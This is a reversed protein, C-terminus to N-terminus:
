GAQAELNSIRLHFADQPLGLTDDPPLCLELGQTQSQLELAM